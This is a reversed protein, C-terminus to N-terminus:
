LTILYYIKTINFLFSELLSVTQQFYFLAFFYVIITESLRVLYM